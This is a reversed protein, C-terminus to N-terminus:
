QQVLAHSTNACFGSVAAVQTFKYAIHVSHVHVDIIILFKFASREIILDNWTSSVGFWYGSIGAALALHFEFLVYCVSIKLLM